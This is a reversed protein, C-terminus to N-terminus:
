LAAASRPGSAVEDLELGFKGNILVPFIARGSSVGSDRTAAIAIVALLLVLAGILALRKRDMPM